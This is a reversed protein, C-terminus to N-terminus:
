RTRPFSIAIELGGLPSACAKIAGEHAEVISKCIALGLGAGGHARNRSDELRFLREFLRGLAEEPVGPASDQLRLLLHDAEETLDIRVRGGPDTYRLSNNLLNALLQRLREPDAFLPMPQQPSHYEVSLGYDSYKDRFSELTQKLIDGLDVDIKRYTLAGIDALALEYLDDILRSLHLIEGHVHGITADTLPRIGDQVAEIEARMVSLPTRLEHSIDALWRRRLQENKELTQALSNFNRALQGLEDSSDAKVRIDFRGSTLRDTASALTTIRRVLKRALPISLLAAITAISLAILILSQQQERAFRQMLKDVLVGPPILGLFAVTKGDVILPEILPSRPWPETPGYLRRKQGDLLLVRLEFIREKPPPPPALSTSKEQMATQRGALIAELQQRHEPHLPHHGTNGSITEVWSTAPMKLFDWSGERTYSQELVLALKAMREKEIMNVYRLFGRDLSLKSVLFMCVLVSCTAVLFALFLRYQISITIKRKM